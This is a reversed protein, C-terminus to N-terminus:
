NLVPALGGVSVFATLATTSLDNASHGIQDWGRFTLSAVGKFGQKPLFRVKATSSLLLPAGSSVAGMSTWSGGAMQYQWTGGAQGSLGIVAMGGSSGSTDFYIGSLLSSVLDGTPNSNNFAVPTLFVASNAVLVSGVNVPNVALSATLVGTSFAGMGGAVGPVTLDTRQGANGATRDWAAYSLTATGSFDIGPVFRVKDTDRLLLATFPSVPGFPIWRSTGSLIYQWTGGGSVGTVAIGKLARSDPDTITADFFSAVTVGPPSVTNESISPLTPSANSNLAPADNGVSILATAMASSFDNASRGIQDWGRFTLSAMGKFGQKPLFRIMATSRLLVPASSSVAAMSTWSGGPMQFQWTGGAQGSLGVVAMGGASGAVDFYMGSLLSGVLNGTPNTNNFAVPPLMVASSTQLVPPVVNVPTFVTINATQVGTSFASMGGTAGPLTLNASKGASGVSPDWAHFTIVATGTFEVGPVFRVWNTPRLLLAASESVTGFDTWTSGGNISYQWDGSSTGTLGVVAIGARAHSATQFSTGTFSAVSNGHPNTSNEPISTLSRHSSIYVPKGAALGALQATFNRSGSVFSATVSTTGVPVLTAYVQGVGLQALPQPGAGGFDPDNAYGGTLLATTSIGSSVGLGPSALPTAGLNVLLLLDYGNYAYPEGPLGKSLLLVAEDSGAPVNKLYGSLSGATVNQLVGYAEAGGMLDPLYPTTQANPLFPNADTPGAVTGATAGNVSGGFSGPADQGFLFRGGGGIEAGGGGSTDVVSGSADVVSGVVKITGGAGGGGM